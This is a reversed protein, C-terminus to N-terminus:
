VDYVGVCASLGKGGGVRVCRWLLWSPRVRQPCPRPPCPRQPCPCLQPSHEQRARTTTPANNYMYVWLRSSPFPLLLLLLLLPLLLLLCCSDCGKRIHDFWDVLDRVGRDGV